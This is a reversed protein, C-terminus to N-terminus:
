DRVFGPVTRTRPHEPKFDFVVTSVYEWKLLMVPIREGAGGGSTGPFLVWAGTADMSMVLARFSGRKPVLAGLARRGQPSLHFSVPKSSLDM